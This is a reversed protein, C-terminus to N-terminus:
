AGAASRWPEGEAGYGDVDVFGADLLWDRMGPQLGLLRVILEVEMDSREDTLTDEYFYLYDDGFVQDFDFRGTM